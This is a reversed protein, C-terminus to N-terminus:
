SDDDDAGGIADTDLDPVSADDSLDDIYLFVTKGFTRKNVVDDVGSEDLPVIPESPINDGMLRKWLRQGYVIPEGASILKGDQDFLDVTYIDQSANYNFGLIYTEVGFDFEFQEPLDDLDVPIYNRASM